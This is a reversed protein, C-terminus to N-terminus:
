SSGNSLETYEIVEGIKFKIKTDKYSNRKITYVKYKRLKDIIHAPIGFKVAEVKSEFIYERNNHKLKFPKKNFNSHLFHHTKNKVRKLARQKTKEKDLFNHTRNQIRKKNAKSQLQGGLFHHTKNKVRRLQIERDFGGGAQNTKNYYKPNNAINPRLNLWNQELQQTIKYNDELINYQLIKRKMTHKRHKFINRVHIGGTSTSYRDNISGHHSGIIFKKYKTDFWLYVFGYYKM